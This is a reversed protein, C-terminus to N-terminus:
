PKIEVMYDRVSGRLVVFQRALERGRATVAQHGIEGVVLRGGVTDGEGYVGDEIIVLRRGGRVLTGRIKLSEVFSMERAAKDTEAGSAAGEAGSKEGGGPRGGGAGRGTAPSGEKTKSAPFYAALPEFPNRGPLKIVLEPLTPAASSVAVGDTRKAVAPVPGQRPAALAPAAQAAKAGGRGESRLVGVSIMTVTWVALSVAALGIVFLRKLVVSSSGVLLLQRHSTRPTNRTM